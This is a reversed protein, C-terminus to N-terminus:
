GDAHELFSFLYPQVTNQLNAPCQLHMLELLPFEPPSTM